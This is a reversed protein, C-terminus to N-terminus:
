VTLKEKEKEKVESPWVVGDPLDPIIPIEPKQSGGDDDGGFHRRKKRMLRISLYTLIGYTVVMLFIDWYFSKM